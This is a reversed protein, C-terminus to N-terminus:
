YDSCKRTGTVQKQVPVYSAPSTCATDFRSSSTDTTGDSEGGPKVGRGCRSFPPDYGDPSSRIWRVQLQVMRRRRRPTGKPKWSPGPGATGRDRSYICVLHNLLLSVVIFHAPYGVKELYPALAKIYKLEDRGVEKQNGLGNYNSVNTALGRVTANRHYIRADPSDRRPACCDSGFEAFCTGDGLWGAHAGDLYLSVNPLQLTAIATSLLQKHAKASNKCKAVSNSAVVLRSPSFAFSDVPESDCGRHGPVEPDAVQRIRPAAAASTTLHLEGAAAKSSCDREPLNYIVLPCSADCVHTPHANQEKGTKKQIAAADPIQAVKAAKAALETKGAAKLRGVETEVLSRYYANGYSKITRLHTPACVVCMAVVAVVVLSSLVKM